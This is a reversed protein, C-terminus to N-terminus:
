RLERCRGFSCCPGVVGDLDWWDEATRLDRGCLVCPVTEPWGADALISNVREGYERALYVNKGGWYRWTSLPVVPLGKVWRVLQYLALACTGGHGWHRYWPPYHSGSRVSWRRSLQEENSRSWEVFWGGCKRVLKTDNAIIALVENATNLRKITATSLVPCSRM